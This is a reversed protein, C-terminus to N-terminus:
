QNGNVRLVRSCIQMSHCRKAKRQKNNTERGSGLVSMEGITLNCATNQVPCLGMGVQIAVTLLMKNDSQRCGYCGHVKISHFTFQHSRVGEKNRNDQRQGSQYICIKSVTWALTVVLQSCHFVMVWVVHSPFPKNLMCM